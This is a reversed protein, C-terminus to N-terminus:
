DSKGPKEMRVRVSGQKPTLRIFRPNRDDPRFRLRFGRRKRGVAEVATLPSGIIRWWPEQEDLRTLDRPADEPDRIHELELREEEANGWVLVMGVDFTLLLAPVLNRKRTSKDPYREVRLLQGGAEAVRILLEM